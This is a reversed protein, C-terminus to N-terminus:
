VRPYIQKLTAAIAEASERDVFSLYPSRNRLLQKLEREAYTLQGLYSNLSKGSAEAYALTAVTLSGRVRKEDKFKRDVVLDIDGLDPEDTLYSGFVDIKTIRYLLDDRANLADARDLLEAVLQDARARSIRKLLSVNAMRIGAATLEYYGDTVAEALGAAILDDTIDRGIKDTIYARKWQNLGLDRLLNRLKRFPQGAVISNIDIKM